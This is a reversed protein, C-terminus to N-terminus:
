EVGQQSTEKAIPWSSRESDLQPMEIKVDSEPFPKPPSPSLSGQQSYRQASANEGELGKKGSSEPVEKIPEIGEELKPKVQPLYSSPSIPKTSERQELLSSEKADSPFNPSNKYLVSM